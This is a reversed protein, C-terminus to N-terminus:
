EEVMTIAKTPCEIACIGCGKCYGMDAIFYGKSTERICADPCFIQCIACKTCRKLNYTPKQSRWDGTKYRRASGPETIIAGIEIDKATLEDERKAM